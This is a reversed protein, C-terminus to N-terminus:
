CSKAKEPRSIRLATNDTIANGLAGVIYGEWRTRIKKRIARTAPTYLALM